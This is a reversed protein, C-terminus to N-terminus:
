DSVQNTSCHDCFPSTVASNPSKPWIRALLAQTL